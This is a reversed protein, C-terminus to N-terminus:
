RLIQPTNLYKINRHYQLILKNQWYLKLYRAFKSKGCVDAIEESLKNYELAAIYSFNTKDAGNRSLLPSVHRGVQNADTVNSLLIHKDNSNIIGHTLKFIANMHCQNFDPLKSQERVWQNTRGAASPGILARGAKTIIFRQKQCKRIYRFQPFGNSAKHNQTLCHLHIINKNYKGNLYHLYGYM